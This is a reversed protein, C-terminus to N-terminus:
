RVIAPLLARKPTESGLSNPEKPNFSRDCPRDVGSGKNVPPPPPNTRPGNGGGGRKEPPPPPSLSVQTGCMWGRRIERASRWAGVGVPALAGLHFQEPTSSAVGEGTHAASMRRTTRMSYRSAVAGYLRMSDWEM